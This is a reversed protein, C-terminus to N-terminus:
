IGEVLTRVNQSSRAFRLSNLMVSFLPFSSSTPSKLIWRSWGACQSVMSKLSVSSLKSRCFM